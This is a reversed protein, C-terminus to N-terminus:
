GSSKKLDQCRPCAEKSSQRRSRRFFTILGYTTAVLIVFLFLLTLDSFSWEIGAGEVLWFIGFTSLLVGVGLKMYNEPIRTLPRAMVVGAIGIILAAILAGIAALGLQGTPAGFSIVILVTEIGELFMGKFSIAFALSDRKGKRIDASRSLSNVQKNYVAAEDRLAKYGAARLIAKTLWQLGFVLLLFGVILRLINIPVYNILAVGLIGVIAALAVLAVAVGELTSRWGRTIGSALIITLAEVMEVASALMVTLLLVISSASM